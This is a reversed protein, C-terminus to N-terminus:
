YVRKVYEFNLFFEDYYRYFSTISLGYENCVERVTLENLMFQFMGQYYSNQHKCCEWLLSKFRKQEEATLITFYFRCTFYIIGQKDYTLGKKYLSPRAKFTRGLFDGHEYM